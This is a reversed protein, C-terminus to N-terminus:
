APLCLLTLLCAGIHVRQCHNARCRALHHGALHTHACQSYVEHSPKAICDERSFDRGPRQEAQVHGLACKSCPLPGLTNEPQVCSGEPSKTGIDLAHLVDAGSPAKIRTICFPANNLSCFCQMHLQLTM